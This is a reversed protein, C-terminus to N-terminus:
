MDKKENEETTINKALMWFRFYKHMPTSGHENPWLAHTGDEPTTTHDIGPGVCHKAKRECRLGLESHVAPCRDDSM